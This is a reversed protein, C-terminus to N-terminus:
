LIQNTLSDSYRTPRFCIVSVFKSFFSTTFHSAFKHSIFWFKGPIYYLVNVFTLLNCVHWNLGSDDSGHEDCSQRGSDVRWEGLEPKLGLKIGASIRRWPALAVRPNATELLISSLGVVVRDCAAWATDVRLVDSTHAVGVMVAVCVGSAGLSLATEGVLLWDIPVSDSVVEVRERSRLLATRRGSCKERHLQYKCENLM